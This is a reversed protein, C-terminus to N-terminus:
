LNSGEYFRFEREEKLRKGKIGQFSIFSGVAIGVLPIWICVAIIMWGADWQLNIYLLFGGQLIFFSIALIGVIMQRKWVGIMMCEKSCYKRRGFNSQYIRERGYKSQRTGKIKTSGCIYCLISRGIM